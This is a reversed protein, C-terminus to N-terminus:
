YQPPRPESWADSSPPTAGLLHLEPWYQPAHSRGIMVARPRPEQCTCSPHTSLPRPKLCTYSLHTSLHCPELCTCSLYTSLPHPELKSRGVMVAPLCPELCTCSLNTSLPNHSWGIVAQPCPELSNYSLNTSLPRPESWADSSPPTAGSLHLEPLHQQLLLVPSKIILYCMPFSFHFFIYILTCWFYFTSFLTCHTWNLNVIENLINM